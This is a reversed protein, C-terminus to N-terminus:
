TEGTERSPLLFGSLISQGAIQKLAPRRAALKKAPPTPRSTAVLAVVEPVKPRCSAKTGAERVSGDTLSNGPKLSSSDTPRSGVNLAQRDVTRTGTEQRPAHGPRTKSADLLAVWWNESQAGSSGSMGSLLQVPRVVPAPKITPAAPAKEAPTDENADPENSTDARSASKVAAGPFLEGTATALGEEDM